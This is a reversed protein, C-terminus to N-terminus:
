QRNDGGYIFKGVYEDGIFRWNTVGDFERKYKQRQLVIM